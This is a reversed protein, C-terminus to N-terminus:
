LNNRLILLLELVPIDQDRHSVKTFFDEACKPRWEQYKETLTISNSSDLFLNLILQPYTTKLISNLLIHHVFDIKREYVYRM